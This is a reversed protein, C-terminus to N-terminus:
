LPTEHTPAITAAPSACHATTVLIAGRTSRYLSEEFCHFVRGRRVFYGTCEPMDYCTADYSSSAPSSPFCSLHPYSVNCFGESPRWLGVALLHLMREREKWLVAVKKKATWARMSFQVRVRNMGGLFSREM